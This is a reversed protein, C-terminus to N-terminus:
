KEVVNLSDMVHILGQCTATWSCSAEVRKKCRAGISELDIGERICRDVVKAFVAADAQEVVFGYEESPALERAGGVDTVLFPTGCAASELLSTSFGESRTPLCFLDAELLLAAIDPQDLRGALHLHPLEAEEIISRLPGDGAVVLDASDKELRRMMEILVNIGKEPILRGTFALLLRDPAIGFEHRFSRDSAHTRFAASDISNGIVGEADIGFTRLWEVSKQSIGYFVPKSRKVLATICHEYIHAFIDLVPNGFTLYASGHDLVVPILGQKQAVQVGLLTHFYFRTNILIGDFSHSCIDEMTTRFATNRVPLPFRGHVANHCPLRYVEVGTPLVEYLGLGHTDNTVITAKHGQRVLESALRDTFREVGGM